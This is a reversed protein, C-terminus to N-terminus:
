RIMGPFEYPEDPLPPLHQTYYIDMALIETAAQIGTVVDKLDNYLDYIKRANDIVRYTKYGGWIAAAANVGPIELLTASLAAEVAADILDSWLGSVVTYFDFAHEALACFKGYLNQGTTNQSEVGAAM